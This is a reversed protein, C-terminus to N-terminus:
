PKYATLTIFDSDKYVILIWLKGISGFLRDRVLHRSKAPQYPDQGDRIARSTDAMHQFSSSTPHRQIHKFGVQSLMSELSTWNFLTLHRPPELGRWHRGFRRQGLSGINPTELYLRGGPKLLRLAQTLTERPDHVHEIVHSMTIVDFRNQEKAFCEIGGNRVHLGQREAQALAAPDPEAGAVDWGRNRARNIFAGNGAGVDLLRGHVPVRPLYRHARDIKAKYTPLLWAALCGINPTSHNQSGYRWNAYGSALSLRLRELAPADDSNAAQSPKDHTFYRDYARHISSPSPRPDLYASGCGACSYLQWTGPACFFVRDTLKDHLLRRARTGCVPCARVPELDKEPWSEAPEPDAAQEANSADVGTM